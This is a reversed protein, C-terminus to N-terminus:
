RGYAILCAVGGGREWILTNRGSRERRDIWSGVDGFSSLLNADYDDHKAVWMPEIGSRQLTACLSRPMATASVDLM